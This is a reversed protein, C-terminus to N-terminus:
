NSVAVTFSPRQACVSGILVPYTRSASSGMADHIAEVEIPDGVPTGTGHCEVYATEDPTLCARQYASAIVDM